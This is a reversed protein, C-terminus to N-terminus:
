KRRHRQELEAVFDTLTIGLASCWDGLEVIDLRREGRECKSVFSQTANLRLAVIEQTVGSKERAKRLIQLFRAYENSYITKEM